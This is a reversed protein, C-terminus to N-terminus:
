EGGLTLIYTLMILAVNDHGEEMFMQRVAEYYYTSELDGVTGGVEVLVFDPLNDSEDDM